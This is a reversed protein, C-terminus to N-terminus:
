TTAHIFLLTGLRVSALLAMTHYWNLWFSVFLLFVLAVLRFSYEASLFSGMQICAVVFILDLFLDQWTVEAVTEQMDNAEDLEKYLQITKYRQWFSHLGNDGPEERRQHKCQFSHCIHCLAQPSSITRHNLTAPLADHSSHM